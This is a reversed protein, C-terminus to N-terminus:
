HDGTCDPRQYCIRLYCFFVDVGLFGGTFAFGAHYLVVLVVAISRLGQIDLRRHSRNVPSQQM